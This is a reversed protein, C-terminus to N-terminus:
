LHVTAVRSATNIEEKTQILVKGIDFTTPGLHIYDDSMIYLDGMDKLQSDGRHLDITPDVGMYNSGGFELHNKNIFVSTGDAVIDGTLTLKGDITTDAASATGVM